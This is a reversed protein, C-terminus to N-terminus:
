WPIALLIPSNKFWPGSIRVYPVEEYRKDLIMLLIGILIKNEFIGVAKVFPSYILAINALMMPLLIPAKKVGIPANAPIINELKNLLYSIFNVKKSKIFYPDM